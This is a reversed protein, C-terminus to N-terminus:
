AARASQKWEIREAPTLVDRCDGCITPRVESARGKVVGCRPCLYLRPMLRVGASPDRNAADWQSPEYRKTM